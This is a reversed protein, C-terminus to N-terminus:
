VRTERSSNRCFNCQECSKPQQVSFISVGQSHERQWGIGASLQCLVVDTTCYRCNNTLHCLKNPKLDIFVPQDAGDRCLDSLERIEDVHSGIVM